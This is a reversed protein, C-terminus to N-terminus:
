NQSVKTNFGVLLSIRFGTPKISTIWTNTNDNFEEFEKKYSPIFAITVPFNFREKKFSGGAALALGAGMLSVNPGMGFELGNKGERIGILMSASPLFLGQEVGGVFLVFELLGATGDSLSFLKTEFQWGIQSLVPAKGRKKLEDAAHGPGIVTFGVRPGGYRIRDFGEDEQKEEQPQQRPQPQPQPQPPLGSERAAAPPPSNFVEKRGNEFVIMFVDTKAITYVPGETNDARKYKIESTTIETVIVKLENGDKFTIVDQANSTNSFSLMLLIFPVILMAKGTFYGGGLKGSFLGPNLKTINEM